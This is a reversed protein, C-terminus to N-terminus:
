GIKVKEVKITVKTPKLETLYYIMSSIQEAVQPCFSDPDIGKSIAVLAIIKLDSGKRIISISRPKFIRNSKYVEINETEELINRVIREFVKDAIGINGNRAYNNIIYYPM